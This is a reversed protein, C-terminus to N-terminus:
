VMREGYLTSNSTTIETINSSIGNQLYIRASNNSKKYKFSIELEENNYEGYSSLLDYLYYQSLNSNGVGLKLIKNQSDYEKLYGRETNFCESYWNVNSEIDILNGNINTNLRGVNKLTINGNVNNTWIIGVNEGDRTSNQIISENGNFCFAMNKITAEENRLSYQTATLRLYYKTSKSLGSIHVRTYENYTKSVTLENRQIIEDKTSIIELVVDNTRIAGDKDYINIDFDITNGLVFLNKINIVPEEKLTTFRRDGNITATYTREVDGIKLETQIKIEYETNSKLKDIELSVVGLNKLVDFEEATLDREWFEEKDKILSIKASKFMAVLEPNTKNASVNINFDITAAGSTIKQTDIALDMYLNGYYDLEATSFGLEGLLEEKKEGKNDKLDYDGFLKIIYYKGIQLNNPNVIDSTVDGSDVIENNVSYVKYKQNKIEVNDTNKYKIKIPVEISVKKTAKTLVAEPKQMCTNLKGSNNEVKILNNAVDYVRIEFEYESNSELNNKSKLSTTQGTLIQRLVSYNVNYAKNNIILEARKAGAITESVKSLDSALKLNSIEIQNSYINEHTFSLKLPELTSIDNTKIKQNVFQVEMTKKEDTEYQYKGIIEYETNPELVGLKINGSSIAQNRMYVKGDKYIEFVISTKIVGSPDYISLNTSVTYVNAVLETISVEPKIWEIIPTEEKNDNDKKEDNDDTKEIPQEEEVKKDRIINLNLLFNKYSYKTEKKSTEIKGNEFDFNNEVSEFIIKSDSDVDIISEYKFVENEMHYFTIYDEKFNIISNEPITYTNATTKIAIQKSNIYVNDSNKIFLYDNYDARVLGETNYLGGSTLVSNKYGDYVELNTTILKIDNTMNLLTINDNIYIPYDLNIKIKKEEGVFYSAIKQYIMSDEEIKIPEIYEDANLDSRLLNEILNNGAIAYGKHEIIAVPKFDLGIKYVFYLVLLVFILLFLIFTPPKLKDKKIKKEVREM